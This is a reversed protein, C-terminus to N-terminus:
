NFLHQLLHIKVKDGVRAEAQEEALDILCNAQTLGYLLASGQNEAPCVQWEGQVLSASARLFERRGPRKRIPQQLVAPIPTDSLPKAGMAQLLYNKLLFQYCVLSAIPNGPLAFVTCTNAGFGIEGYAFPRGPKIRLQKFHLQGLQALAPRIRDAVGSSVGGSTIIIQAQLCAQQLTEILALDADAVIGLDLVECGLRTLLYSLTYRNVEYHQAPALSQGPLRLEDGSSFLAVRLKKRVSVQALGLSALLGSEAAGLHTGAVLALRNPALDEGQRRVNQGTRHHQRAFTIQQDMRKVLEHPIVSDCSEPLVAGTMIQVAQMADIEGQFPHGALARGIVDFTLLETDSKADTDSCISKSAYAYGDMAANDYAPIALPALVPEALIRGAAAALSLVETSCLCKAQQQLLLQVQSLSLDQNLPDSTM